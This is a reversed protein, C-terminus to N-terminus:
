TEISAVKDYKAKAEDRQDQKAELQRKSLSGRKYLTKALRLEEEALELRLEAKRYVATDDDITKHVQKHEVSLIELVYKSRRVQIKSISGRKFLRLNLEHTKKQHELKITAAKQLNVVELNPDRASSLQLGALQKELLVQRFRSKSIANRARLEESRSFERAAIDYRKQAVLLEENAGVSHQETQAMSTSGSAAFLVALAAITVVAVPNFYSM